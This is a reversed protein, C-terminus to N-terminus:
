GGNVRIQVVAVKQKQDFSLLTLFEGPNGCCIGYNGLSNLAALARRGLDFIKSSDGIIREHGTGAFVILVDDTVRQSLKPM